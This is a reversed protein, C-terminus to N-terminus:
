QGRGLGGGISNLTKRRQLYEDAKEIRNVLVDLILYRL